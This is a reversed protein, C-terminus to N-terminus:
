ILQSTTKFHCRGRSFSCTGDPILSPAATVVQELPAQHPKGFVRTHESILKNNLNEGIKNLKDSLTAVDEMHKPTWLRAIAALKSVGINVGSAILTQCPPSIM